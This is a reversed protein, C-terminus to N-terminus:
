IIRRRPWSPEPAPLGNHEDPEALAANERARWVTEQAEDLSPDAAWAYGLRGDRIVRVGLGRSEAFTMGEVEGRISLEIKKIEFGLASWVPDITWTGTPIISASKQAVISM